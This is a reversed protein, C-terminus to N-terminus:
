LQVTLIHLNQDFFFLPPPKRHQFATAAFGAVSASGSKSLSNCAARPMRNSTCRTHTHM